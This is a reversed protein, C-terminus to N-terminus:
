QVRPKKRGTTAVLPLDDDVNGKEKQIREMGTKVLPDRTVFDPLDYSRIETFENPPFRIGFAMTQRPARHSSHRAAIILSCAPPKRPEPARTTSRRSNATAPPPPPVPEDVAMPAPTSSQQEKAPPTVTHSPAAQIVRVTTTPPVELTVPAPTPTKPINPPAQSPQSPMPSPVKSALQDVEDEDTEDITTISSMSPSDLHYSAVSPVEVAIPVDPPAPIPSVERTNPAKKPTPTASPLTRAPLKIKLGSSQSTPIPRPTPKTKKKVPQPADEVYSGDDSSDERSKGKSKSIARKKASSPEIYPDDDDDLDPPIDLPHQVSSEYDQYYYVEEKATDAPIPPEVAEPPADSVDSEGDAQQPAYYFQPPSPPRSRVASKARKSPSAYPVTGSKKKRPNPLAEKLRAELDLAAQLMQRRRRDGELSQDESASPRGHFYSADISLFSNSDFARLQEIREHLHYQKNQLKEVDRLRGGKEM